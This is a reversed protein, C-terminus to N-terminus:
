LIDVIFEKNITATVHRHNKKIKSGWFRIVKYGKKRLTKSDRKDRAMNLAIKTQWFKPIGDKWKNFNKGHWFDGDAFIAIKSKPFVMDPKGPLNKVNTRYREIKRLHKVCRKLAIEIDTGSTKIRSMMTSRVEKSFKDM